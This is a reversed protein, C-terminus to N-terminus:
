LERSLVSYNPPPECMPCAPVLANLEEDWKTNEEGCPTCEFKIGCELCECEHLDTTSEYLVVNNM